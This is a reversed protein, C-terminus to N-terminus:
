KKDGVWSIIIDKNEILYIVIKEFCCGLCYISILGFLSIAFVFTGASIILPANSINTAYVESVITEIRSAIPFMWLFIWSSVVGIIGETICTKTM